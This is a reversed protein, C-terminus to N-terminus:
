PELIREYGSRDIAEKLDDDDLIWNNKGEIGLENLIYEVMLTFFQMPIHQFTSIGYNSQIDEYLKLIQGSYDVLRFGNEFQKPFFYKTFTWTSNEPYCLEKDYQSLCLKLDNLDKIGHFEHMELMFRERIMDKYGYYSKRILKLEPQGVLITTLTINNAHLENYIDMLLDYHKESLRQAEDIFFIIKKASTISAKGVLFNILRRRKDVATGKNIEAHGVSKLMEEFFIRETLKSYHNTTMSYFNARSGWSSQLVLMIYDISSTKGIRPRGYIIAGPVRNNIWINVKEYMLGVENTVFIYSGDNIPHVYESLKPREIVGQNENEM